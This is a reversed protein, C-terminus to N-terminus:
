EDSIFGKLLDKGVEKLEKKREKSDSDSDLLKKIKDPDSLTDKIGKKLAGEVDPIFKPDSFTGTIKIPVVIGERKETDGQGKVTAVFKPEVHMDLAETVLNADGNAVARLVPSILTTETTNVLGDKITFVSKMESFDTRAGSAKREAEGFAAKVNRLMGDLDIGILAGDKFLMNGNGTLSQKITEADDGRMNIDLDTKFTGEILEKKLVDKVLPGIQIGEAHVDMASKPIDKSVDFSGKTKMNGDYLNVTFPDLYFIGNKGTIKLNVDQLKAGKAKMETIIIEGALVLKRLPTYDPKSRKEATTQPKGVEKRESKEKKEPPLYRDVDIKDLKIMFNVDPKKFDKAKVEFDMESDDLKFKGDSISVNDKTGKLGAMLAVHKLVDPDSTALPFDKGLKTFVERPSFSAIEINMDFNPNTKPDTISGKLNINIEELAKIVLDIPITGQGPEKGLPGVKGELSLPNGDVRASFNIKLPKDLSIDELFLNLDAIENQKGQSKDLFLISGKKVAFEEVDISTIPLGEDKATQGKPKETKKEPEPIKPKGIGEWNARGKKDKILVIRPEEAVFRKVQIERSILPILKVKVEFSKISVFEKEDFGSPNGFHLDSFAIGAWPFLTLKLKGDIHFPRGTAEEVKKEIQPKFKEVNVFMPIVILAAVFLVVLGGAIIFLWKIAKKM